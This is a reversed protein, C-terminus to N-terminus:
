GKLGGQQRPLSVSLFLQVGERFSGVQGGLFLIMGAQTPKREDLVYQVLKPYLRLLTEIVDGFTASPPFGLLLKSRGEVVGRLADPMVVTVNM